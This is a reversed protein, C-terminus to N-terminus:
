RGAAWWVDRAGAERLRAELYPLHEPSMDDVNTEVLVLRRTALGAASARGLWLRLM